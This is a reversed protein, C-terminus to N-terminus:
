PPPGLSQALVLETEPELVQHGCDGEAPYRGFHGLRPQYPESSRLIAVAVFHQDKSQDLSITKLALRPNIQACLM